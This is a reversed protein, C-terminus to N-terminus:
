SIAQRGKRAKRTIRRARAAGGRRGEGAKAKNYDSSSRIPHFGTADYFGMEVNKMHKRIFRARNAVAKKRTKGPVRFKVDGVSFPALWGSTRMKKKKKAM